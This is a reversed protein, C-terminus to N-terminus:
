GPALVTLKRRLLQAAACASSSHAPAKGGVSGSIVCPGAMLLETVTVLTVWPLQRVPQLLAGVPVKTLMPTSPRHRMRCVTAAESERM